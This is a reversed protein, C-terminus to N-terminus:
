QMSSWTQQSSQVLKEVVPTMTNMSPPEVAVLRRLEQHDIYLKLLVGGGVVYLFGLSATRIIQKIQM